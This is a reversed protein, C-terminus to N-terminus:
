CDWREADLNQLVDRRDLAQVWKVAVAAVQILEGRLRQPGHEAFGAGGRGRGAAGHAEAQHLGM